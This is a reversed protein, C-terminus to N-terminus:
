AGLLKKAGLVRDTTHAPNGDGPELTIGMRPFKGTDARFDWRVNADGNADVTFTGVSVRNPAAPTDGNGSVLWCEYFAGAPPQPLGHVAMEITGGTATKRVKAVASGTKGAPAELEIVEAVAAKPATATRLVAVGAGIVVVSAAIALVKRLEITRHRRRRQAELSPVATPATSPARAPVTAEEDEEAAREIAACTRDELHSPPDVRPAAQELLAALGSFDEVEARCADCETLHQEFAAAETPELVGLVYGGLDAHPGEIPEDLNPM